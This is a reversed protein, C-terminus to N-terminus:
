LGIICKIWNIYHDYYLLPEWGKQCRQIALETFPAKCIRLYWVIRGANYFFIYPGISSM